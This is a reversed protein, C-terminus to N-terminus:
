ELQQLKNKANNVRRRLEKEDINYKDDVEYLDDSAYEDIDLFLTDLIQAVEMDFSGSMWYNDNRRISLFQSEFTAADIEKDIFRSILKIYIDLHHKDKTKM